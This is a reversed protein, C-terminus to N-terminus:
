ESADKREQAMAVGELRRCEGVIAAFINRVSQEDFADPAAHVLKRLLKEERNPDFVHLGKERKHDGVRHVVHLRRALLQLLDNDITDIEERLSDIHPDDIM